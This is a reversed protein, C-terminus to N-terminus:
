EQEKAGGRLHDWGHTDFAIEAGSRDLLSAAHEQAIVIEGIVTLPVEIARALADIREREGVLLLEYDEGGSTVYSLIEDQELVEHLAPHVPLLDQWVVAGAQSMRCVHGLDQLLGDSVDIGCTIGAKVAARGVDPRPQPRLHREILPQAVAQEQRRDRLARLGGAAAGLVGTVAITDGPRATNRRLLLPDGSADMEARGYLALCISFVPARVVDGGAITVNFVNAADLLGAYLADIQEVETETPLELTVVAFEPTGGMAAIDSVNVALAKWGLDPWPTRDTLFHVGAVLTDTTAIVASGNRRWVAADDGIGLELQDAFPSAAQTALAGALRDILGFEGLESVKV